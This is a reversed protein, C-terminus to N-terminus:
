NVEDALAAASFLMEAWCKKEKFSLEGNYREAQFGLLM